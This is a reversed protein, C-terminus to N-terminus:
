VQRLWSLCTKVIKQSRFLNQQNQFFDVLLGDVAVLKGVVFVGDPIQDQFMLRHDGLLLLVSGLDQTKQLSSFVQHPIRVTRDEDPFLHRGELRPPVVAAPLGHVSEVVQVLISPSSDKFSQPPPMACLNREPKEGLLGPNSERLERNEKLQFISRLTSFIGSLCTSPLLVGFFIKSARKVLSLLTFSLASVQQEPPGPKIGATPLLLLFPAFIRRRIGCASFHGNMSHREM